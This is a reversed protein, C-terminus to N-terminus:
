VCIAWLKLTWFYYSVQSFVIRHCSHTMKINTLIVMCTLFIIILCHCLLRDANEFITLKTFCCKSVNVNTGKHICLWDHFNELIYTSMNLQWCSWSWFRLPNGVLHSGRNSRLFSFALSYNVFVCFSVLLNRSQYFLIWVRVLMQFIYLTSFFSWSVSWLCWSM